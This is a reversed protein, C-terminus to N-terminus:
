ARKQYFLIYPMAYNLIETQFNQVQSVMDDNYTYWKNDIPSKCHAVFHGSAGSEGMHTVVGILDYIAGTKAYEESYNRIDLVQDFKLKVKYQIGAGRNLVIILIDPSYYLTTQFTADMQAKCINCYMANQGSFNEAKRNYDFCDYIDVINQSLSQIKMMNQNINMMDMNMMNLPMNMMNMNMMNMNQNSLEQLKFKRVEELPFILFFISEFNHKTFQCGLCQTITHTAGYFIDSIISKNERKFNEM